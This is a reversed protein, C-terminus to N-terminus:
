PEPLYAGLRESPEVAIFLLSSCIIENVQPSLTEDTAEVAWRRSSEGWVCGHSCLGCSLVSMKLVAKLTHGIDQTTYPSSGHVAIQGTNTNCHLSKTIKIDRLKKNNNVKIITLQSQFFIFFCFATERKENKCVESTPQALGYIPMKPVRRFNVAKMEKVTSLVDPAFFEDAM